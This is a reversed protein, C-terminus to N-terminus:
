TYFTNVIVLAALILIIVFEFFAMSGLLIWQSKNLPFREFWSTIVLPVEMREPESVYFESADVAHTPMSTPESEPTFAIDPAIELMDEPEPLTLNILAETLENADDTDMIPPYKMLNAAFHEIADTQVIRARPRAQDIHTRPNTFVLVAEVEPLDYGLERFYHHIVQAMRLTEAQPNSSARQFRRARSSFTQWEEGKARYVGRIPTPNLVRVGQPGMLVMPILFTTGPIVVNRILTHDEGLSRDLRQTTFDQAQMERYWALGYRLSGRIRNELSIAGDEDRFDSQDIVRMRKGWYACWARAKFGIFHPPQFPM